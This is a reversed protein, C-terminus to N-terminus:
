QLVTNGLRERYFKAHEVRKRNYQEIMPLQRIACYALANPLATDFGTFTCNKEQQYLIAPILKCKALLLFLLKGFGIGYTKRAIWGYLGYRLNKAIETQSPM